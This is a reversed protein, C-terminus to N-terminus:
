EVEISRDAHPCFKRQLTRVSVGLIRAAAHKNGRTEELVREMYSRELEALTPRPHDADILASPLPRLDDLGLVRTTALTVTREVLNQLQRVNGPWPEAQLWTTAEETFGEVVKGLRRGVRQAFHTALLPIDARRDRLRPVEIPIVAIRYYLDERLYQESVLTTLKRNTASLVRVDIRREATGGVPRVKKEQLARLLKAQLSRPMEAIEDLFVVGGEAEAFLGATSQVAGTFSGKQHGFLESELLPEPIAACNVAVFSGSRRRSMAHIARAVLEKGTGSEGLILVPAESAAVNHIQAKLALMPPSTGLLDVHDDPEPAAAATSGERGGDHVARRVADAIDALRCPKTVYDFAGARLAGVANQLTGFATMVIVPTDPAVERVRRLVAMGDTAPMVLDTVVAAFEATEVARVAEHGGTMIRVTHGRGALERAIVEAMDRDDDVVLIPRERM